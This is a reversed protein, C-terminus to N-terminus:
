QQSTIGSGQVTNSCQEQPVKILWQLQVESLTLQLSLKNQVCHWCLLPFFAIKKWDKLPFGSLPVKKRGSKSGHKTRQLDHYALETEFGPVWQGKRAPPASLAGSTSHPLSHAGCPMFQTLMQRPGPHFSVRTFSGTSRLYTVHRHTSPWRCVFLKWHKPLVQYLSSIVLGCM